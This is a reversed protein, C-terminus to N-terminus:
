IIAEWYQMGTTVPFFDMPKYPLDYEGDPVEDEDIIDLHLGHEETVRYSRFVAMGGVVERVSLLQKPSLSEVPILQSGTRELKVRM